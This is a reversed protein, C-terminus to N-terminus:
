KLLFITAFYQDLIDHPSQEKWLLTLEQFKFTPNLDYDIYIIKMSIKTIKTLNKIKMYCLDLFSVKSFGHHTKCIEIGLTQINQQHITILWRQTIAM